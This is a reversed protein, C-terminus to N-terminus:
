LADEATVLLVLAFLLVTTLTGPWIPGHNKLTDQCDDVLLGIVELRAQRDFPRRALTCRIRALRPSQVPIPTPTCPETTM